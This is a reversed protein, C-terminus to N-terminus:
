PFRPELNCLMGLVNVLKTEAHFLCSLCRLCWSLQSVSKLRYHRIQRLLTGLEKQSGRDKGPSETKRPQRGRHRERQEWCLWIASDYVWPGGSVLHTVSTRFDRLCEHNM